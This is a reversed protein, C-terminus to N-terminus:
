KGYKKLVALVAIRGIDKGPPWCSILILTNESNTLDGPIKEGKELFFKNMVFYKFKKYNFHIIVEDDKELENLRSFVWDYKIRPWGPPASHGLIITQGVQGPLVSDPYYVVGQDLLESLLQSGSNQSFIIPASIEIKPIELSNEQDSYGSFEQFEPGTKNEIASKALEPRFVESLFRSIVRYNFVWSIESWNFILVNILLLVLFYKFIIKNEKKQEM